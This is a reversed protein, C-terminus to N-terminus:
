RCTPRLDQPTLPAGTRCLVFFSTDRVEGAPLRRQSPAAPGSGSPGKQLQHPGASSQVLFGLLWPPHLSLYSPAGWRVSLDTMHPHPPGFLDLKRMSLLERPLKTPFWSTERFQPHALARAQPAPSRNQADCIPCRQSSHPSNSVPSSPGSTASSSDRPGSPLASVGPSLQQASQTRDENKGRLVM